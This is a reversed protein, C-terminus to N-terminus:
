KRLTSTRPGSPSISDNVIVVSAVIWINSDEGHDQVGLFVESLHIRWVEAGVGYKCVGEELM